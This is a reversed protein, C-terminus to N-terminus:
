MTSVIIIFENCYWRNYKKYAKCESIFKVVYITGFSQCKIVFELNIKVWNHQSPFLLGNKLFWKSGIKGAISYSEIRSSSHVAQRSECIHTM